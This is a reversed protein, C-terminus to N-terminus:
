TMGDVIFTVKVRQSKQPTQAALTAVTLAAASLIWLACRM